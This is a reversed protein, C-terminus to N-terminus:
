PLEKFQNLTMGDKLFSRYDIVDAQKRAYDFIADLSDPNKYRIQPQNETGHEFLLSLVILNSLNFLSSGMFIPVPLQKIPSFTRKSEPCLFILM